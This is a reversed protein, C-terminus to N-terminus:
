ETKYLWLSIYYYSIIVKLKCNWTTPRQFNGKNCTSPLHQKTFVLLWCQMWRSGLSINPRHYTLLVLNCLGVHRLLSMFNLWCVSVRENKKLCDSFHFQLKLFLWSTNIRPDPINSRPSGPETKHDLNYELPMLCVIFHHPCYHKTVRSSCCSFHCLDQLTIILVVFIRRVSVISHASVPVDQVLKLRILIFSSSCFSVFM